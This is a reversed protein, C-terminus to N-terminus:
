RPQCGKWTRTERGENVILVTIPKFLATHSQQCAFEFQCPVTPTGRGFRSRSGSAASDTKIKCPCHLMSSNAERREPVFGGEQRRRPDASRARLPAPPRAPRRASQARALRPRLPSTCGTRPVAEGPVVRADRAENRFNYGNPPERSARPERLERPERVHPEKLVEKPAEPPAGWAQRVPPTPQGPVTRCGIASHRRLRFKEGPPHAHAAQAPHHSTAAAVAAALRAAAALGREEASERYRQQPSPKGRDEVSRRRMDEQRRMVLVLLVM